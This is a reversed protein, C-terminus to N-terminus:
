SATATGSSRRPGPPRPQCERSLRHCRRRQPLPCLPRRPRASRVNPDDRRAFAPWSRGAVDGGRAPSDGDARSGSTRRALVRRHHHRSGIAPAAPVVPRRPAVAVASSCEICAADARCSCACPRDLRRRRAGRCPRPRGSTGVRRSRARRSRPRHACPTRRSLASCPIHGGVPARAHGSRSHSPRARGGGARSRHVRRHGHPSSRTRCRRHLGAARTAM